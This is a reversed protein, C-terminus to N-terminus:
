DTSTATATATSTKTSSKASGMGDAREPRVPLVMAKAKIQEAEEQLFFVKTGVQATGTSQNTCLVESNGPPCDVCQDITWGSYNATMAQDFQETQTKSVLAARLGDATCDVLALKVTTCAPTDGNFRDFALGQDHCAKSATRTAEDGIEAEPRLYTKPEKEGEDNDADDKDVEDDDKDSSKKSSEEDEGEEGGTERKSSTKAKTKGDSESGTATATAASPPPPAKAADCAPLLGAAGLALSFIITLSQLQM